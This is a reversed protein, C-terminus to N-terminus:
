KWGGAKRLMQKREAEQAVRKINKQRRSKKLPHQEFTDLKIFNGQTM